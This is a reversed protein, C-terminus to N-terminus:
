SRAADVAPRRSAARYRDIVLGAVAPHAGLPATVWRAGAHQLQDHFHGPALLYAAVAVPCGTRARLSAVADTVRPQAASAFAATVPAELREALLSAQRQADAAASPGASGAAALVVPTRDPVGAEALRGALATVLLTDPGLPEAVQAGAQAAAGAIDTTLHYGGSLLLPVVVTRPGAAALEGPLAPEAHQVFAIRVDLVPALRRVQRALAAITQRAAPDRSGHAVALLVPNSM